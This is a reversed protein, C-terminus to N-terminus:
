GKSAVAAWYWGPAIVFALIDEIEESVKDAAGGNTAPSSKYLIVIPVSEKVTLIPSTNSAAATPEPTEGTLVTVSTKARKSYLILWDPEPIVATSLAPILLICNVSAGPDTNDGTYKILSSPTSAVAAFEEFM